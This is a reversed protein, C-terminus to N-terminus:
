AGTARRSFTDKYPPPSDLDPFVRPLELIRRWGEGPDVKEVTVDDFHRDLVAAREEALPPSCYDEEEWVVRGDPRRRAQTLGSALARGFPRMSLIEGSELRKKLEPLRDPDPRAHVLYHPM